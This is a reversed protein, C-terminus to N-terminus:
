LLAGMMMPLADLYVCWMKCVHGTGGCTTGIQRLVDRLTLYEQPIRPLEQEVYMSCTRSHVLYGVISLIDRSQGM